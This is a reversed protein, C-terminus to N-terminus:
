DWDWRVRYIGPVPDVETLQATRSAGVWLEAVTDPESVSRRYGRVVRAPLAGPAFQVQLSLDRVAEGVRITQEADPLGGPLVTYDLVTLEGARLPRDLLLELVRFGTAEDARQRGVRCGRSEPIHLPGHAHDSRFAVLYRDTDREARLLQHYAIAAIRRSADVSVTLHTGVRSLDHLSEPRADLRDLARALGDPRAWARDAPLVGAHHRLWRGRPRRPGLLSTLSDPPLNLIHELSTVARLSEPREPRTHGHQWYSLATKSAPTGRSHLRAQLRDLSLGSSKVALRLALSFPGNHLAATLRAETARDTTNRTTAKRTTTAQTTPM